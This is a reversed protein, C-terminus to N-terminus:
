SIQSSPSCITPFSVRSPRFALRNVTRAIQRAFELEDERHRGVVIDVDERMVAAEDGDDFVALEDAPVDGDAAAHAHRVAHLFCKRAEAVHQREARLVLHDVDRFLNHSHLAVPTVPGIPRPRAELVRDFVAPEVIEAGLDFLAQTIWQARRTRVFELAGAVEDAPTLALVLLFPM